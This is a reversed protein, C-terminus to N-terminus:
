STLRRGVFVLYGKAGIHTVSIKVGESILGYAYMLDICKFYEKKPNRKFEKLRVPYNEFLNSLSVTTGRERAIPASQLINGLMDFSLKRGTPATEATSTALTINSSACLSSLAEGRFGFTKTADIDEFGSIKSTCYRLAQFFSNSCEINLLHTGIQSHNQESIGLGNDVFTM